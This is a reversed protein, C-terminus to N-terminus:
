DKREELGKKVGSILERIRANPIMDMRKYGILRELNDMQVSRVRFSEKEKLLITENGYMLAPVLLTEHLIRACDFQLERANVLTMIADAIRRVCSM